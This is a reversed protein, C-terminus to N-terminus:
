SDGYIMTFLAKIPADPVIVDNSRAYLLLSLVRHAGHRARRLVYDWDLTGQAIIAVADSWHRPTEEDHIIAKIVMLDEPPITKLPVGQFNTDVLREIMEEDLYIDGRARFLVDILVDDKVAKYLWHPNTKQTIFGREALIDLVRENDHPRVFIDADHTWRPRGLVASAVGGLLGYPVDADEVARVTEGLVRIFTEEPVTRGDFISKQDAADSDTIVALRHSVTQKSM